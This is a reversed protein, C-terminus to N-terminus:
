AALPLAPADTGARYWCDFMGEFVDFLEEVLGVATEFEGIRLLYGSGEVGDQDKAHSAEAHQHLKGFYHLQEYLGLEGVLRYMPENFCAFTAELAEIIAMRLFPTRHTKALFIAHYVVERTAHNTPAWVETFAQAPAVGLLRRGHEIRALDELYWQWHFADEDCHQHVSQQLPSDDQEDRLAALMDKFSMAFFMMAPVFSLRQYPAVSADALYTCLASQRLRAQRAAIVQNLIDMIDQQFLQETDPAAQEGGTDPPPLSAPRLRTLGAM